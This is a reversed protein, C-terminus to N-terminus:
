SLSYLLSTSHYTLLNRFFHLNPKFHHDIYHSRPYDSSIVVRTWHCNLDMKMMQYLTLSSSHSLICWFLTTYHLTIYAMPKSVFLSYFVAYIYGIHLQHELLFLSPHFTGFTTHFLTMLFFLASVLIEAAANWYSGAM